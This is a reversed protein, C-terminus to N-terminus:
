SSGIPISRRRARDTKPVRVTLVGESLSATVQDDEVEAPLSVRYDFRGVPRTRTRLFGVREREEVEGSVALEGGGFEVSIDERKVGPVELEVLYAEATEEVDAAPRWGGDRLDGRFADAIREGFTESLLRGMREHLDTLEDWPSRLVAPSSERASRDRQELADEHRSHDRRLDNRRLHNRRLHNRRLVPLAM